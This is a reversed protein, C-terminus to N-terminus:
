SSGDWDAKFREWESIMADAAAQREGPAGPAATKAREPIIATLVFRDIDARLSAGRDPALGARVWGAMAGHWARDLDGFGRAAVVAWYNASSSGPDRRLEQELREFMAIYLSDRRGPSQQAHRDLASAWWDLVRARTAPPLRGDLRALANAFLEAAAGFREAFFLWEGLGVLLEAQERQSLRSADIARLADRAHTLDAPEASQRYRELHARAIVLRAADVLTPSALAARAEEIAADYREENYADRARALAHVDSPSSPAGGLLSVLVIAAHLMHRM